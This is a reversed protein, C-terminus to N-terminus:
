EVSKFGGLESTLEEVDWREMALEKELSAQKREEAQRRKEEAEREKKENSLRRLLFSHFEVAMGAPSSLNM